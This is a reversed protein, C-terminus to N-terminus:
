FLFFLTKGLVPHVDTPVLNFNGQSAANQAVAGV